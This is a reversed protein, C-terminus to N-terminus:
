RGALRPIVLAMSAPAHVLPVNFLDYLFPIESFMLLAFVAICLAAFLVFRRERYLKEPSQVLSDPQLALKMYWAFFGALFPACLILEFHYRVIFIGAFLSACALCFVVFVLLRNEDWSRFSKRYSAAVDPDGLSRYEAYRKLAMFFAGSMWYAVGLSVPPLRDDVFVAWGLLLRLPNNLSESLVDAYAVDKLRLPPINYACGALWFLLSAVGFVSGIGFGLAVGAIGLLPWLLLATATGIEGNAFPRAHKTPHLRDFPADLYENLVYNSSAVLCTAFFALALVPVSSIALFSPEYFLALSVGLLMFANKFWHDPRAVRLAPGLWSRLRRVDRGPPRLWPPCPFRIPPANFSRWRWPPGPRSKRPEKRTGEACSLGVSSPIGRRPDSAQLLSASESCGRVEAESLPYVGPEPSAGFGRPPEFGACPAFFPALSFQTM